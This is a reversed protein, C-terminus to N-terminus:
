RYCRPRRRRAAAVAPRARRQTAHSPADATPKNAAGVRPACPKSDEHAEVMTHTCVSHAAPASLYAAPVSLHQLTVFVLLVLVDADSGNVRLM